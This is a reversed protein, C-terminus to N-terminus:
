MHHIMGANKPYIESTRIFSNSLLKKIERKQFFKLITSLEKLIQYFEAAFCDPGPSKKSPISKIVLKSEKNKPPKNL